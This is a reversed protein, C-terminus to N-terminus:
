YKKLSNALKTFLSEGEPKSTDIGSVTEIDLLEQKEAFVLFINCFANIKIKENLVIKKLDEHLDDLGYCIDDEEIDVYISYLSSYINEHEKLMKTIKSKTEERKIFDRIGTLIRYITIFIFAKKKPQETLVFLQPLETHPIQTRVYMNIEAIEDASFDRIDVM